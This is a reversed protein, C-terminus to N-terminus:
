TRCRAPGTWRSAAVCRWRPTRNANTFFEESRLFIEEPALVPREPDHQLFRHRERTDTWFRELAEDVEGHLVLAAQEGLYDFLHRDADFFLPLYYEIGATAIGQAMDKYIRSKTPDGELKERWRQASPRPARAEDMPFERGPLLRVEPVPYLSRQSDPDFTRISDVENGFLDVRYPV